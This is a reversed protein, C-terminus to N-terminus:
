FRTVINDAMWIYKLFHLVIECQLVHCRLFLWGFGKCNLYMTMCMNYVLIRTPTSVSWPITSLVPKFSDRLQCLFSTARVLPCFPSSSLLFLSAGTSFPKRDTLSPSTLCFLSLSLFAISVQAASVFLVMRGTFIISQVNYYVHVTCTFLPLYMYMYQIYLM